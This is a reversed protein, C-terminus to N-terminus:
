RTDQLTASIEEQPDELQTHEGLLHKIVLNVCGALCEEGYIHVLAFALLGTGLFVFALIGVEQAIALADMPWTPEKQNLGQLEIKDKYLM